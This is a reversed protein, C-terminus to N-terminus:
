RPSLDRSVSPRPTDVYLSQLKVEHASVVINGDPHSSSTSSSSPHDRSQASTMDEWEEEGDEEESSLNPGMPDQPTMEVEDISNLTALDGRVM